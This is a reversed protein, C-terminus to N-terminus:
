WDTLSEELIRAIDETYVRRPSLGILRKQKMTGEALAAIDASDYGVAQLGNSVLLPATASLRGASSANSSAGPSYIPSLSADLMKSHPAVGSAIKRTLGLGVIGWWETACRTSGPKFNSMRSMPM